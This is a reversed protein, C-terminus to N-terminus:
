RRGLMRDRASVWPVADDPHSDDETVRRDLEALQAPTVEVEEPHEAIRDWLEELLKIREATPLRDFMPLDMFTMAQESSRDYTAVM